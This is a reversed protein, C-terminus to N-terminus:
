RERQEPIVFELGLTSFIAEETASAICGLQPDFVGHYPNWKLGRAKAAEILYINHEKSGTRCLLLSGFNSPTAGLLDKHGPHALFIDLQVGNALRAILNIEGDLVRQTRPDKFLRHRFAAPSDTLIVLDIDGCFPRQRRISGAIEIRECFPQLEAAIREALPIAKNLPLM